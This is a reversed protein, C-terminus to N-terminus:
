VFVKSARGLFQWIGKLFHVRKVLGHMVAAFRLTVLLRKVLNEKGPHPSAIEL